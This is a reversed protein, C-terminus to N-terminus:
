LAKDTETKPISNGGRQVSRLMQLQYPALKFLYNIKVFYIFSRGHKLVKIHSPLLNQFSIIEVM